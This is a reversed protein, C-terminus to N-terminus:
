WLTKGLEVAAKCREVNRCVFRKGSPRLANVAYCKWCSVAARGGFANSAHDVHTM